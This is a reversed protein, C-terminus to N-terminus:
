RTLVRFGGKYGNSDVIIQYKLRLDENLFTKINQFLRPNALTSASHHGSGTIFLIYKLNQNKIRYFLTSNISCNFQSQIENNNNNINNNNNNYNQSTQSEENRTQYLAPCYAPLLDLLLEKAESVHLGHM